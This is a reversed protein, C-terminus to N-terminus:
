KNQFAFPHLVVHSLHLTQVRFTNNAEAGPIPKPQTPPSSHSFSEGTPFRTRRIGTRSSSLNYPPDYLLTITIHASFRFTFPLAASAASASFTAGSHTDSITPFSALSLINNHLPVCHPKNPAPSPKSILQVTKLYTAHISCKTEVLNPAYDFRFCVFFVNLTM